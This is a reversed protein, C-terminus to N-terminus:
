SKRRKDEYEELRKKYAEIADEKFAPEVDNIQLITKLLYETFYPNLPLIPGLISTGIFNNIKIGELNTERNLGVGRIAKTFYNNSNDGYEHSFQDKFGVIKLNEFEGLYLSNYRNFMERKAYIDFIELGDIKSKDENEIYKGLIEFANGTFLMAQGEDIKKKIENRYEIIGKIAKEQMKETMSGLYVLKVEESLFSPKEGLNTEIFEANPLCKQLYMVNGFDGYINSIEPFLIEIKM